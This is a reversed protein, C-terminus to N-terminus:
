KILVKKTEIANGLHLQLIYIGHKLVPLQINSTGLFNNMAKKFVLKGDLSYLVIEKLPSTAQINFQYNTIPNPYINNQNITGKFVTLLKSYSISGDVGIIKIRYYLKTFNSITHIFSYNTNNNQWVLTGANTFNVANNSYEIEFKLINNSINPTTWKLENFNQYSKITFDLLSNSFQTNTGISYLRGNLSVAFLEGSEDEGFGTIQGPVNPQISANFGNNENPSILWANASVFDATIYYGFLTPYKVGRYVQGGTISFGGTARNHGYAFIPFVYNIVPRCGGNNYAADGEYCRWGYNAGTSSDFPLRNVEEWLGQGVDAIWCDYNLKDFSWRWANRLGVAFIEPKYLPNNVYPNSPPISYFPPTDFNNVDIRIMKGLLSNPNQANNNPDGGGGGDGTAFYLYGDPGFQLKGGNHNDFNKTINLLEKFTSTDAENPNDLKVQMSAVAIQANVNTYYVFFYRNTAYNPHFVLSLLGKEGGVTIRNSINLFNTPLVNGNAFIKVAGGQEVIFLRNSGDGANVVDVPKNLGSTVLSTFTLVPAQAKIPQYFLVSLCFLCGIFLLPFKINM